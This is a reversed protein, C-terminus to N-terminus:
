PVPLNDVWNAPLDILYMEVEGTGMQDWNSGFVIRTLDHNASAQPEAFYFYDPDNVDDVLSHTHALRAVRGGATLEVAFVSDDMWTMATPRSGEYTSVIAWGPEAFSRGSIHFGIPSHSFDIQWLATIVGSQLDVMSIWDTTTDQFVLVERGQSDYAPDSHGVTRLLGRGNKLNQDYVMLGCPNAATGLTGVPCTLDHYALFYNGSPSITVTDIERQVQTFGTLDLSAIVTDTLQDYVVLAMPLWQADQAMLGWTRGDSSPSGEYRTWVATVQQGPFDATFDHVLTEQSTAVNYAMLRVYRAQDDVASETFHYIVDPDTADWRPDIDLPLQRIVQLTVADYLYWNAEVSRALLRTGNANFAQVRSYENKLGPSPDGPDLDATRDTVRVVCTGFVPDLFPARPQPEALNPTQYVTTDTVQPMTPATCATVDASAVATIAYVLLVAGCLLLGYAAGRCRIKGVM